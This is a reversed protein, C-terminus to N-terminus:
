KTAAEVPSPQVLPVPEDDGATPNGMREILKLVVEASLGDVGGVPKKGDVTLKSESLVADAAEIAEGEEGANAIRKWNKWTLEFEYKKGYVTCEM